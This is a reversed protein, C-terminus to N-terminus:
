TISPTLVSTVKSGANVCEACGFIEDAVFVWNRYRIAHHTNGYSEAGLRSHYKHQSVFRPETPTGGRIGAGVDLIVLGDNWYSLYALGDQVMVDHLSRGESELGWRGAHRPVSPESIDIIHMDRTGNHVAYVM